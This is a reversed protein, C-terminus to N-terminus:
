KSVFDQKGSTLHDINSTMLTSFPASANLNRSSAENWQAFSLSLLWNVVVHSAKSSM